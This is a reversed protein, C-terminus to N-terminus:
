KTRPKQLYAVARQLTEVSEGFRGLSVNCSNCLLGRVRGTQHCHDVHPTSDKGRASRELDFPRLCIGCRNDQEALLKQFDLVTLGFFKKLAWERAYRKMYARRHESPTHRDKGRDAKM